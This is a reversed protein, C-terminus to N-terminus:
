CKQYDSGFNKGKIAGSEGEGGKQKGDEDIRGM